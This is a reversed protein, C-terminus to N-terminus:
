NLNQTYYQVYPSILFCISFPVQVPNAYAVPERNAYLNSILLLMAHKIPSPVELNNDLYTTSLSYNLVNEISTFAVSELDTLYNDDETNEIEINLQKKIQNLTLLKM